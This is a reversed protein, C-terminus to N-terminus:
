RVYAGGIVGGWLRGAERDDCLGADIAHYNSCSYQYKPTTSQCGGGLASLVLLAGVLIQKMANEEIEHTSKGPRTQCPNARRPLRLPCAGAASPIPDAGTTMSGLAGAAIVSAAEQNTGRAAFLEL